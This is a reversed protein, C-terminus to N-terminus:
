MMKELFRRTKAEDGRVWRGREDLMVGDWNSCTTKDVLCGDRYIEDRAISLLARNLSLLRQVQSRPLHKTIELWVESPLEPTPM